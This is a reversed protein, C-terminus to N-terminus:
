PERNRRNLVAGFRKIHDEIVRELRVKEAADQWWMWLYAGTIVFRFVDIGNGGGLVVQLVFGGFWGAICWKVVTM